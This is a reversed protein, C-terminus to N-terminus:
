AAERLTAEGSTLEVFIEELTRTELRLERLGWGGHVSAEVVADRADAGDALEILFRGAPGADVKNVGPLNQLADIQPPHAFVVVLGSKGLHADITADYVSRGKNIIMVRDCVAQIEPLIHSSLIVSHQNGLEGILNRIERIQIPDLGVTPEDLIIVDPRHIIAQALGVRQQYGKSLNGILRSSVQTLGCDRKATTVAASREKRPVGHLGACYSLYEDVTLEPYVPPQEPLYGLHRKAAQADARLNKGKILVEGSTPSLNGTLMKMSTSKGAGNPGLLGLVEGKKLTLDLGSVAVNPGYRRTLARAEILTESDM